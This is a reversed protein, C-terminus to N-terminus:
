LGYLPSVDVVHIDNLDIEVIGRRNAATAVKQFPKFYITAPSGGFFVGSSTVTHEKADFYTLTVIRGPPTRRLKEEPTQLNYLM